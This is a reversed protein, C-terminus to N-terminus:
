GPLFPLWLQMGPSVVPASLCNIRMLDESLVGTAASLSELTDGEQVAYLVWGEPPTPV